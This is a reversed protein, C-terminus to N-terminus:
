AWDLFFPTSFSPGSCVRLAWADAVLELCIPQWKKFWLIAVVIAIVDEEESLPIKAHFIANTQCPLVANVYPHKHFLGATDIAGPYQILGYIEINQV